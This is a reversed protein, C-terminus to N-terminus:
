NPSKLVRYLTISGELNPHIGRFYPSNKGYHLKLELQRPIGEAARTVSVLKSTPATHIPYMNANGKTTIFICTLQM